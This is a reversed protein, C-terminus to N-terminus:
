NMDKNYKKDYFSTVGNIMPKPIQNSIVLWIVFYSVSKNLAFIAWIDKTEYWQYFHTLKCNMQLNISIPYKNHVAWYGGSEPNRLVLVYYFSM